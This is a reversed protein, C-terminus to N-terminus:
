CPEDGHGAEERTDLAPGELRLAEGTDRDPDSVASQVGHDADVVTALRRHRVHDVGGPDIRKPPEDRLSNGLSARMSSASSPSASSWVCRPPDTADSMMHLRAWSCPM